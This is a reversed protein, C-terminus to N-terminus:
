YVQALLTVRQLKAHHALERLLVIAAVTGRRAKLHAALHPRATMFDLELFLAELQTSDWARIDGAAIDQLGAALQGTADLVELEAGDLVRAHPMLWDEAHEIAAELASQDVPRDGPLLALPGGALSAVPIWDGAQQRALRYGADDIVLRAQM